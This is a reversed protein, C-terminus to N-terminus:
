GQERPTSQGKPKRGANAPAETPWNTTLRGPNGPYTESLPGNQRLSTASM